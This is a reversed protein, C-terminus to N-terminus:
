GPQEQKKQIHQSDAQAPYPPADRTQLRVHAQQMRESLYATRTTEAHVARRHQFLRRARRLMRLLIMYLTVLLAGYMAIVAFFVEQGTLMVMVISLLLGATAYLIAFGVIPSTMVTLILGVTLETRSNKQKPRRM